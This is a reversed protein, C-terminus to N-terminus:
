FLKGHWLLHTKEIYIVFFAQLTEHLFGGNWHVGDMQSLTGRNYVFGITAGEDM